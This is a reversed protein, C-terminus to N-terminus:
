ELRVSSCNPKRFSSSSDNEDKIKKYDENSNEGRDTYPPWLNDSLDTYLAWSKHSLDTCPTWYLIMLQQNISNLRSVKNLFQMSGLHRDM